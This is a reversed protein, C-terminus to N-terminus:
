GRGRYLQKAAEVEDPIKGAKLREMQDEYESQTIKRAGSIWRPEGIAEGLWYHAAERMRAEIRYDGMVGELSLYGDGDSLLQGDVDWVCVGYASEPVVIAKPKRNGM